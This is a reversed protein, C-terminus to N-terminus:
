QYVTLFKDISSLLEIESRIRDDSWNWWAVKLLLDVTKEDFRFRTIHCPNGVVIAYDPVDKIVVAQMGIIAGNGITIGGKMVAGSGIWVDNKIYITGDTICKTYPLDWKEAFPFNSVIKQNVVSAHQGAYCTLYDGISTFNGVNVDVECQGNRGTYSHRGLHIM